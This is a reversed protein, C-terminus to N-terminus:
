TVGHATISRWPLLCSGSAPGPSSAFLRKQRDVLLIPHRQRELFTCRLKARQWTKVSHIRCDGHPVRATSAPVHAATACDGASLVPRGAAAVGVPEAALAPCM